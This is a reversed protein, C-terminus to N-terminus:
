SVRWRLAASVRCLWLSVSCCFLSLSFSFCSLVFSLLASALRITAYRGRSGNKPAHKSGFWNFCRGHVCREHCHAHKVPAPTHPQTHTFKRTSKYPPQTAESGHVCEVRSRPCKAFFFFFCFPLEGTSACDTCVKCSHTRAIDTNCRSENTLTHHPTTHNTDCQSSTADKM